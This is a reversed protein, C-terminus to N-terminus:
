LHTRSSNGQRRKKSPLIRANKSRPGTKFYAPNIVWFGIIEKTTSSEL